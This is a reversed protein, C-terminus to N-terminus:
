KNKRFIRLILIGIISIFGSLIGGLILAKFAGLREKELPLIPKDIVQILPTEKRLSVKAMELNPLLQTLVATNAQVDIQRQASPTRRINLAPNLNYTNDNAIAVGTIARNLEQRVSDTQRQLLEFNQRARRSKTEIYFDSVVRALTETFLKAFLEDECKLEITIISIKKDKQSVSLLGGKDVIQKWLIGMVSDQLITFGDPDSLPLYHLEQLDKRDKWVKKYDKFRIYYDALSQQKNKKNVPQLLAKQVLSRSKMLEILNGGSFAGGAGVGMDIGLSSALGLAGALGGGSAKEEELAFTLIATYKTKQIWAYYLGSLAGIIVLLAIIKWKTKLYEFLGQIKLLIEKLSIEDNSQIESDVISM